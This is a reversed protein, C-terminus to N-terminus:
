EEEKNNSKNIMNKLDDIRYQLNGILCRREGGTPLKKQEEIEKKLLKIEEIMDEESMKTGQEDCYVLNEDVLDDDENVFFNGKEDFLTFTRDSYQMAIENDCDYGVWCTKVEICENDLEERIFTIAKQQAEGKLERIRFLQKKM